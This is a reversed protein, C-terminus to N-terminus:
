LLYLAFDASLTDLDPGDERDSYMQVLVGDPDRIFVARRGADTIDVELPVGASRARWVSRDLDDPDAIRLGTHHFGARRTESSQILTLSAEGCSGALVAIQNDAGRSLVRLGVITMYHDLAAALDNVVLTVHSTRQPHFLADDVRRIVPNEHYLPTEVPPTSGPTWAPKPKTVIGSRQSRWDKVVDAYLEYINGDPDVNYVSHSIDHDLTRLFTHGDQVAREYSAVLARETELEFAFHNLQGPKAGRPKGLPGGAEIFGFDHHTNGNSVFGGGGLPTRYVEEIGLVKKYFTMTTELDAVYINAHAVRRPAFYGAKQINDSTGVSM